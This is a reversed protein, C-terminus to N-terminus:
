CIYEYDEVQVNLLILCYSFEPQQDLCIRLKSKKLFDTQSQNRWYMKHMTKRSFFVSIMSYEILQCCKIAQNGKTGSIHTNYNNPEVIKTM